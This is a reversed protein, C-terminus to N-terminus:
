KTKWSNGRQPCSCARTAALIVAPQRIARLIQKPLRGPGLFHRGERHISSLISSPCGNSHAFEMRPLRGQAARGHNSATRRRSSPQPRRAYHRPNHFLRRARSADPFLLNRPPARRCSRIPYSPRGPVRAASRPWRRLVALALTRHPHPTAAPPVGLPPFNGWFSPWPVGRGASCGPSRALSEGTGAM